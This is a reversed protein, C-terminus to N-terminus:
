TPEGAADTAALAALNCAMILADEKPRNYYGTRRAVLGFGLGEYFRRAGSNSDRVELLARTIGGGAARRFAAAVLRTGIGRRRWDPHVAVNLLHVEEFITWCGLYGTIPPCALQDPRIRAVLFTAIRRNALESQFMARSWAPNSVATELAVVADLDAETMEDIVVGDASEVRGPQARNM